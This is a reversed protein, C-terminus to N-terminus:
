GFFKRRGSSASGSATAGDIFRLALQEFARAVGSKTASLVVPSGKNVSIPVVVDSPVHAVAAVRLTREVEAVDLKVKSDARNLVLHLKETPVNLLSLTSLGIKVNKINPIDLGAVLVIEDSIEIISLVVENFIAPLDVIVHGAFTRIIEVLHAMQAGSVQDAFTPEVPAPLVLLGSPEHVTMLAQLMSADANDIQSIADMVTHQPQLKLMVAVDGFQLHGDILVVPRDTRQAMVVGLNTATVSKGSGGKTSFVTLVQGLEQGDGATPVPAPGASQPSTSVLGDAIRTVTQILAEQDIPASLVDKIGVRLARQLLETSLEATVLVTGVNSHVRTWGEIIALSESDACSPGLVIVIPALGLRTEIEVLSGAADVRGDFLSGLYDRVAQDSDVVALSVGAFQSGESAAHLEEDLETDMGFDDFNFNTFDSVDQDTM